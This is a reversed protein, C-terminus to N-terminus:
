TAGWRVHYLRILGAAPFRRDDLLTTILRYGERVRSGDSGTMTLEAEIIRVALGGLDSLYSGDPLHALVPPHRISKARSGAADGRHRRHRRFLTGRQIL